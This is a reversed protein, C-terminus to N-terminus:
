LSPFNSGSPASSSQEMLRKFAELAMIVDRKTLSAADAVRLEVDDTSVTSTGRTIQDPKLGDLGRNISFFHNAM